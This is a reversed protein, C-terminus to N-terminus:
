YFLRWFVVTFMLNYITLTRKEEGDVAFNDLNIIM